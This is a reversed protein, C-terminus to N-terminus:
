QEQSPTRLNSFFSYGKPSEKYGTQNGILVAAVPNKFVEMSKQSSLPLLNIPIQYNISQHNFNYYFNPLNLILIPSFISLFCFIPFYGNPESGIRTRFQLFNIGNPLIIQFSVILSM